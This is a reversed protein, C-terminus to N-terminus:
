MLRESIFRKLLVRQAVLTRQNSGIEHKSSPGASSHETRILYILGLRDFGILEYKFGFISSAIPGIQPGTLTWSPESEVSCVGAQEPPAIQQNVSTLDEQPKVVQTLRAARGSLGGGM